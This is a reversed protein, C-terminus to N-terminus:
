SWEKSATHGYCINLRESESYLINNVSNIKSVESNNIYIYIYMYIHTYVYMYININRHTNMIVLM